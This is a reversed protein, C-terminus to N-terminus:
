KLFNYNLLTGVQCSDVGGKLYGACLMSSTVIGGYVERLNCVKNSILPVGAYNMTESTDGPEFCIVNEM